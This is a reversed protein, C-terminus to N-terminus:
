GCKGPHQQCDQEFADEPSGPAPPKDNTPSDAEDPNFTPTGGNDETTTTSETTTTTEPVTTTDEPITVEPITTSTDGGDDGCAVAGLTLAVAALM